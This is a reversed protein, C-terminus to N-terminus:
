MSKQRLFMEKQKSLPVRIARSRVRSRQQENAQCPLGIARSLTSSTKALSLSARLTNRYSSGFTNYSGISEGSIQEGPSSM